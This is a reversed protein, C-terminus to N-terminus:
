KSNLLEKLTTNGPDFHSVMRNIYSTGFLAVKNAYNSKQVLDINLDGHLTFIFVDANGDYKSLMEILEITKM